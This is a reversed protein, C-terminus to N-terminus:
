DKSHTQRVRKRAELRSGRAELGTGRAEYEHSLGRWM